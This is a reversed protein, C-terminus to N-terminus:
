EAPETRGNEADWPQPGDLGLAEYILAAVHRRHLAPGGVFDDHCMCFQQDATSFPLRQHQSLIIEVPDVVTVWGDPCDPGYTSSTASGTDNQDAV